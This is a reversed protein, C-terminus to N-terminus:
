GRWYRNRWVNGDFEKKGIVYPRHRTQILFMLSEFSIDKIKRYWKVKKHSRKSYYYEAVQSAVIGVRKLRALFRAIVNSDVGTVQSLRYTNIYGNMSLRNWVLLWERVRKSVKM